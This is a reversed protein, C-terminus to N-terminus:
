IQQRMSLRLYPLSIFFLVTALVVAMAAGYSVNFFQFYQKYSLLTLIQSSYGPGGGTMSYVMGFLRSEWVTDLVLSIIFMHKLNPMTVYMFKQLASCGDLEAAEYQQRPISQLGALLILMVYPYGRWSEALIVAFFALGPQGLWDVPETTLHTRLLVSNVIGPLTDFMFRWVLGGIVDPMTWPLIAVVRWMWKFKIDMNLLLAISLGVVLHSSVVVVVFVVTNFLSHLFEADDVLARYAGLSFGPKAVWMLNFSQLFAALAPFGLIVVLMLLAPLIFLYGKYNDRM